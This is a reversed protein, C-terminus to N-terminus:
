FSPLMRFSFFLCLFLSSCCYNSILVFSSHLLQWVLFTLLRYAFRSCANKGQYNIRLKPRMRSRNEYEDLKWFVKPRLEASFSFPDILVFQDRRVPPWAFFAVGFDLLERVDSSYNRLCEHLSASARASAGWVCSVARMLLVFCFSRGFVRHARMRLDIYASLFSCLRQAFCTYASCSVRNSHVLLVVFLNACGFLRLYSM